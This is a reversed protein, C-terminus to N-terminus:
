DQQVPSTPYIPVVAQWPAALGQGARIASLALLEAVTKAPLQPNVVLVKGGRPILPFVDRRVHSHYNASM